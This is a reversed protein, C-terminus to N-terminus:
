SRGGVVIKKILVTPQGDSVPVWQGSKGCTGHEFILDDAIYVIDNLVEPGNGILTAGKVMPGVFGNEILYGESVEFVFNGTATDVQGGGVKKVFLGEHAQRIVEQPKMTGPVLYTVGMRPIAPHRFSERRGHGNPELCYQRCTREDNLYSRLIGQEILTTTVARNGEDDYAYSGRLSPMTPDDIITVEPSAVRKGIKDKYHPSIGKFVLDAELSHGISEHILTGGASGSVVVPMERCPASQATMLGRVRDTACRAKELVRKEEMLEWGGMGAVTEFSTYIEDGKRAVILIRLAQYCKSQAIYTGRSNMLEEDSTVSGYQIRVQKVCDGIAGRIYSDIHELLTLKAQVPTEEPDYTYSTSVRIEEVPGINVGADARGSRLREIAREECPADCCTFDLATGDIISLSMGEEFSRDYESLHAEEWVLGTRARKQVFLEGLAERHPLNREIIARMREKETM